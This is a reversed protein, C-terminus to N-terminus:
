EALNISGEPFTRNLRLSKIQGAYTFHVINEQDGFLGTLVTNRIRVSKFQKIRNIELYCWVAENEVEFGLFRLEASQEDIWVNFNSKLYQGVVPQDQGWDLYELNQGHESILQAQFDDWFLKHTIEITENEANYNM